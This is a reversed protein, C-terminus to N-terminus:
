SLLVENFFFVLFKAEDGQWFDEKKMEALKM